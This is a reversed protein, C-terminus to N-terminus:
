MDIDITELEALCIFRCGDVIEDRHVHWHGFIWTKPRHAWFVADLWGGTLTPFQQRNTMGAGRDLFLLKTISMPGDHTVMIDPKYECYRNYLVSFENYGVEEDSWWDVGPTRWPKDISWAGGIFMVKSSGITKCLGDPIWQTHTRCSTPNDHNGRLFEHDNEVMRDYYPSSLRGEPHEVTGRERFGIGLDGVQITPYPSNKLITDYQGFIGHVDGIM